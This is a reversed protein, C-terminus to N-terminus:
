RGCSLRAVGLQVRSTETEKAYSLLLCPNRSSSGGRARPSETNGEFPGGIFSWAIQPISAGDIKSGSPADWRNTGPDIYTFPKMLTMTRGDAGWEALVRGIYTGYNEASVPMAMSALLLFFPFGKARHRMHETGYLNM